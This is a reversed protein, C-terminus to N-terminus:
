LLFYLYKKVKYIYNNSTGWNGIGHIKKGTKINSTDDIVYCYDEENIDKKIKNLISFRLRRMFRNSSFRQVGNQMTSVSQSWGLERATASLSKLGFLHM